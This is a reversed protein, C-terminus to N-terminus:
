VSKLFGPFCWTKLDEPRQDLKLQSMGAGVAGSSVLVVQKGADALASLQEAFHEMRTTDLKGDPQTLVRTGVKIVVIEATATIEQRLLDTM